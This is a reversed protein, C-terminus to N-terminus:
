GAGWLASLRALRHPFAEGDRLVRGAAAFGASQGPGILTHPDEAAQARERLGAVPLPAASALLVVNGGFSGELVDDEAVVVVHAFVELLTACLARVLELPPLDIANVAFAGEPRLARRVEAFREVTALHAPVLPGSFADLVVLDASADARAALGERADGVHVRLDPATRLGLHRRALEVVGGDLEWVEGDSGPRTAAVYRALTCAGGGLHLTALPAGPPALLDVLDGIRRVYSWPLRTPDELDVYSTDQGDLRLTRGGPHRPDVHVHATALETRVEVPLPRRRGM